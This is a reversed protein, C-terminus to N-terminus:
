CSVNFFGLTSVYSLFYLSNYIELIYYTGCVMMNMCTGDHIFLSNCVGDYGDLEKRMSFSRILVVCTGFVMMLTKRSVNVFLFVSNDAAELYRVRKDFDLLRISRRHYENLSIASPFYKNCIHLYPYPEIFCTIKTASFKKTIVVFSRLLRLQEEVGKLKGKGGITFGLSAASNEPSLPETVCGRVAAVVTVGRVTVPHLLAFLAEEKKRRRGIEVRRDRRHM